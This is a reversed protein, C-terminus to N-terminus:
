LALYWVAPLIAGEAKLREVVLAIEIADDVVGILGPILYGYLARLSVMISIYKGSYLVSPTVTTSFVQM